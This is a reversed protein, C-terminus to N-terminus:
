GILVVAKQNSSHKDASGSYVVTANKVELVGCGSWRVESLTMSLVNNKEMTAIVNRLSTNFETPNGLSRVNCCGIKFNKGRKISLVHQQTKVNQEQYTISDAM